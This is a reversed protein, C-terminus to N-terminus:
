LGCVMHADRKRSRADAEIAIVKSAPRTLGLWGSLAAGPSACTVGPSNTTSCGVSMLRPKSHCMSPSALRLALTSTENLFCPSVAQRLPIGSTRSWPSCTKWRFTKLRTTGFMNAPLM